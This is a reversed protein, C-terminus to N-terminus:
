YNWLRKDGEKINNYRKVELCEGGLYKGSWM